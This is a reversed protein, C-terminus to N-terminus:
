ARIGKEFKYVLQLIVEVPEKVIYTDGNSMKITTDPNEQITEILRHNLVFKQENLKTLIIMSCVTGALYLSRKCKHQPVPM